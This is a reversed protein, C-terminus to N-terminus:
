AQEETLKWGGIDNRTARNFEILGKKRMAQLRMDVVRWSKRKETEHQKAELKVYSLSAITNFGHRGQKIANIIATDIGTYNPKANTM